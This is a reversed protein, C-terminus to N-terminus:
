GVDQKERIFRSILGDSATEVIRLLKPTRAVLTDTDFIDAIEGFGELLAVKADM